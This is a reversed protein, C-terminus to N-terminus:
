KEEESCLLKARYLLENPISQNLLCKEDLAHLYIALDVLLVMEMNSEDMTIDVYRRLFDGM